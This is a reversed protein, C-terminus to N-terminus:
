TKKEPTAFYELNYLALWYDHNGRIVSYSNGLSLIKFYLEVPNPNHNSRDFVDGLYHM